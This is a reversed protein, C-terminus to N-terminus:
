LRCIYFKWHIGFRMIAFRAFCAGPNLQALRLLFKELFRRSYFFGHVPWWGLLFFCCFLHRVIRYHLDAGLFWFFSLPL